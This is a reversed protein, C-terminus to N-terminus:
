HAPEGILIGSRAGAAAAIHLLNILAAIPASGLDLKLITMGDDEHPTMSHIVGLFPGDKESRTADYWRAFWEVCQSIASGRLLPRLGIVCRSWEFAALTLVLKGDILLERQELPLPYGIHVTHQRATNPPVYEIFDCRQPLLDNATKVSREIDLRTGDVRAKILAADLWNLYHERVATFHDLVAPDDLTVRGALKSTESM